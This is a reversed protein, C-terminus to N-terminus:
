LHYTYLIYINTSRRCEAGGGSASSLPSRKSGDRKSKKMEKMKRGREEQRERRTCGEVVGYRERERERELISTNYIIIYSIYTRV